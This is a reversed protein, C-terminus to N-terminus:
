SRECATKECCPSLAAAGDYLTIGEIGLGGTLVVCSQSTEKVSKSM